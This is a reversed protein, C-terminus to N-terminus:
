AGILLPTHGADECFVIGGVVVYQAFRHLSSLVAEGLDVDINLLRIKQESIKEPVQDSIVNCRMVHVNM